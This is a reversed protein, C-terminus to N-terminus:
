RQKGQRFLSIAKDIRRQRTEETKAGNVNDIHYRQLGNSLQGFFTQATPDASLAAAFDEPVM